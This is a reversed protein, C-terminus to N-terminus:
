QVGQEIIICIYIGLCSSLAMTHIVQIYMLNEENINADVIM